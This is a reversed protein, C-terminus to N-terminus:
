IKNELIKQQTKASSLIINHLIRVVM